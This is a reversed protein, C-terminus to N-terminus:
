AQGRTLVARQKGGPARGVGPLHGAAAQSALEVRSRYGLKGLINAVHREVTRPSLYLAAAIESNTQGAAVLQAVEQERASLPGGSRHRRGPRMGLTRAIRRARDAARAAGMREFADIAALLEARDRSLRAAVLRLRTADYARLAHDAAVRFSEIAETTRGDAMALWGRAETRMGDGVPWRDVLGDMRMLADRAAAIDGLAASTRVIGAECTVSIPDDLVSGKEYAARAGAPQDEEELLLGWIEAARTDVVSGPVLEYQDLLRRAASLEGRWVHLFAQSCALRTRTLPGAHAGVRVGALQHALGVDLDGGEAIAHGLNSHLLARTAAAGGEIALGQQIHNRESALDGILSDLFSANLYARTAESRLDAAEARRAVEDLVSVGEVASRGMGVTLGYTNLVRVQLGTDDGPEILQVAREADDLARGGEGMRLLMWARDSLAEARVTREADDILSETERFVDQAVELDSPDHILMLVHAFRYLFLLREATDARAELETRLEAAARHAEDSAGSYLLALVHGARADRDLREEGSMRALTEAHGYLSAADEGLARNLAIEGLKLYAGAAEAWRRGKELQPAWRELPGTALADAVIAHRRAREADPLRAYVADRVISHTFRWRGDLERALFGADALAEPATAAEAGAVAELEEFTFPTPLVATWDLAARTMHPLHTAREGISDRVSVPVLASVANQGDDASSPRPPPSTSMARLLEVCLFPNGGTREHVVRHLDETVDATGLLHQTLERTEQSSLNDLELRELLRERELRHVVPGQARSPRAALIWALPLDSLRAMCYHVLDITAADSWQVDDLCLLLPAGVTAQELRELAVYFLEQPQGRAPVRLPKGASSLLEVAADLPLPVTLPLCAARAVRSGPSASEPSVWSSCGPRV